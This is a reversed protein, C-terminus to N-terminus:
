VSSSLMMACPSPTPLHLWKSHLRGLQHSLLKGRGLRKLIPHRFSTSLLSEPFSKLSPRESSLKSKTIRSLSATNVRPARFSILTLRGLFRLSKLMSLRLAIRKKIRTLVDTMIGSLSTAPLRSTALSYCYSQHEPLSGSERDNNQGQPTGDHFPDSIDHSWDSSWTSTDPLLVNCVVPKAKDSSTKTQFPTTGGATTQNNLSLLASRVTTKAQSHAPRHFSLDSDQISTLCTPVKRSTSRLATEMRVWM